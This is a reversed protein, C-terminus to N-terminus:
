SNALMKIKMAIKLLSVLTSVLTETKSVVLVDSMPLRSVVLVSSKSAYGDEIDEGSQDGSDREAPSLNRNDLYENWVDEPLASFRIFTYILVLRIYINTGSSHM